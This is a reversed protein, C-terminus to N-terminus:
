LSGLIETAQHLRFSTGISFIKGFLMRVLNGQATIYINNKNKLRKEYKKSTNQVLTSTRLLLIIHSFRSINLYKEFYFSYFKFHTYIIFISNKHSINNNNNSNTYKKSNTFNQFIFTFFM